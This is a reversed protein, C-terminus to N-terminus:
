KIKISEISKGRHIKKIVKNANEQYIELTKKARIRDIFIGVVIGTILFLYEM